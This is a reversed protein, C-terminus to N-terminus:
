QKFSDKVSREAMNLFEDNKGEAVNGCKECMQFDQNKAGVEIIRCKLTKHTQRVRELLM